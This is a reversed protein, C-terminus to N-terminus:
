NAPWGKERGGGGGGSGKNARMRKADTACVYVQQVACAPGRM